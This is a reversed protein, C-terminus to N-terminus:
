EQGSNKEEGAPLSFYFRAGQNLEGEAWVEGGQRKIIRRVIALGVGTGSYEKVSHLRQFVGFLKDVFQMDFGAGNDRICFVTHNDEPVCEIYIEPREKRSSFKIANSLLNTMVQRILMPDGYVPCIEGIKLDITKRTEEDAVEKYVSLFLAKLDFVSKRIETRQLRSFSLLDDILTGMRNTNEHILTCLRKGEEDFLEYYESTLIGTFGDIARLPARLDHSVTYSFAEMERNAELLQATRESVRVELDANLKRIEEQALQRETIDMITGMFRRNRGPSAPVIRGRAHLYKIRDGQLILRFDEDLPENTELSHRFMTSYRELDSPHVFRGLMSFDPIFDPSVEFLRYTQESWWVQYSELDWEWSGISAIQQAENLREYQETLERKNEILTKEVKKLETIDSVTTIFHMPTGTLDRLLVTQLDTYVIRGSKHIYRKVWRARDMKGQLIDSMVGLDHEIDDPHTVERWKVHKLEEASYGLMDCFAQNFQVTGDPLTMSKGVSAYEFVGRFREESKRLEEEQLSQLTVDLIIAVFLKEEHNISLHVEIPYTTGDKRRHVTRFRIMPLDSELLPGVLKRFQDESFEPKLDVPTMSRLEQLSYGTNLLAGQNANVIQLTFADFIYIVNISQHLVNIFLNREKEAQRLQTIDRTISIMHPVDGLMVTKASMLGVVESGDKRIFVSEFNEVDKGSLLLSVVRNRDTIDKWINIELTSKGQLDESSFGTISCYNDNFKVIGGDDLRTIMSADPSTNFIAALNNVSETIDANLRQNLMIIFGFSLILGVILADFFPLINFWTPQFLNNASTGTMYMVARLLFVSASVIFVVGLFNASARINKLKYLFLSVATVMFIFVNMTSFLIARYLINDDIWLYYLFGVVFVSVGSMMLTRNEKRGMFRMVGIYQFVVAAVFMFNQLLVVLSFIATIQRFLIMAFGVIETASWALWWGPGAYNRNIRFQHYFVLVQILHSIGLVFILTRIDIVM